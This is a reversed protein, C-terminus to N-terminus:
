LIRDRVSNYWPWALFFCWLCAQGRTENQVLGQLWEFKLSKETLGSSKVNWLSAGLSSPHLIGRCSLGYISAVVGLFDKMKSLRWWNFQSCPSPVWDTSGRLGSPRKMSPWLFVHQSICFGAHKWLSWSAWNGEAQSKSFFDSYLKLYFSIRREQLSEVDRSNVWSDPRM